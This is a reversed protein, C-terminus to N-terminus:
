SVEIRSRIWRVFLSAPPTLRDFRRAVLWYAGLPIALDFLRLLRGAKIEDEAFIEDMLAIGQGRLVAQMVLGGDAYIPGRATEPMAMGAAEFWRSWVDRNEEHLLTHRLIDDPRKIAPGAELLASAAVAIMSVDALHESETRPWATVSASHRIAIEARGSRFEVLRPDSDITVDIEPHLERFEPLRSVLSCAAFSPEVSITVAATAPRSRIEELCEDIRDFSLTL